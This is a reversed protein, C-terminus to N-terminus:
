LAPISASSGPSNTVSSGSTSRSAEDLASEIAQEFEPSEVARLAQDITTTQRRQAASTVKAFARKLLM